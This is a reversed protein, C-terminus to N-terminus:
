SPLHKKLKELLRQISNLEAYHQKQYGGPEREYEADHVENIDRV